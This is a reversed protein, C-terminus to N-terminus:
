VERALAHGSLIAFERADSEDGHFCVVMFALPRGSREIVAERDFDSAQWYLRGDHFIVVPELLVNGTAVQAAIAKVDGSVTTIDGPTRLMAPDIRKPKDWLQLVEVIKIPTGDPQIEFNITKHQQYNEM